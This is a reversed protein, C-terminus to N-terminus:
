PVPPSGGRAGGPWFLWASASRRTRSHWRRHHGALRHDAHARVPDRPQRPDRRDHQVRAAVRVGLRSRGVRRPALRLGDSLRDRITSPWSSSQPWWSLVSRGSRIVRISRGRRASSSCCGSSPWCLSPWRHGPWSGFRAASAHGCGRSPVAGIAIGALFLALVATFVYTYGGTGSTLLRTWTVQYGLSTLGSPVRDRAGPRDVNATCASRPSDSM